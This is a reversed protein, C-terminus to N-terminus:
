QQATHRGVGSGYGADELERTEASRGRVALGNTTVLPQPLGTRFHLELSDPGVVTVTLSERIVARRKEDDAARWGNLLQLLTPSPRGDHLTTFTQEGQRSIITVTEEFPQGALDDEDAQDALSFVRAVLAALEDRYSRATGAIREVAKDAADRDRLSQEYRLDDQEIARDAILGGLRKVEARATDRAELAEDLTPGDNEPIGYNPDDTLIQEVTLATMALALLVNAEVAALTYGGESKTCTPDACRTYYYTTGHRNTVPHRRLARGCHHKAVGTLPWDGRPAWTERKAALLRLRDQVKEFTALDVAHQHSGRHLVGHRVVFGAYIANCLWGRLRDRTVVPLHKKRRVLAENSIQETAFACLPRYTEGDAFRRFIETLAPLDDTTDLEGTEKNFRYGPPADGHHYRGKKAKKAKGTEINHSLTASYRNDSEADCILSIIGGLDFTYERGQTTFLRCAADELDFFITLAARVGQRTLRSSTDVILASAERRKVRELMREFDPRPKGSWASIGHDYFLELPNSALGDPLGSHRAPITDQQRETEQRNTSVRVYGFVPRTDQQAGSAGDTKTSVRTEAASV